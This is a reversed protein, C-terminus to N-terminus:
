KMGTIMARIIQMLATLIASASQMFESFVTMYQQFKQQQTGNMNTAATIATQLNAQITGSNAAATTIAPNVDNANLHLGDLIWNSLAAQANAQSYTSATPDPIRELDKLVKTVYSVIPTVSATNGNATQQQQEALTLGALQQALQARTNLITALVTEITQGPPLKIFPPITRSYIEKALKDFDEAKLLTMDAADLIPGNSPRYLTAYYTQFTKAPIVMISIADNPPISINPYTDNTGKLFAVVSPDSVRAAFARRQDKSLKNYEKVVVSQLNFNPTADVGLQILDTASLSQPDLPSLMNMRESFLGQIGMGSPTATYSRTLFANLTNFLTLFDQYPPPFPPVPVPAIDNIARFVALIYDSQAYQNFSFFSDFTHATSQHLATTIDDFTTGTMYAQIWGKKYIDVAKVVQSLENNLQDIKVPDTISPTGTLLSAKRQETLYIVKDLYGTVGSPIITAYSVYSDITSLISTKQDVTLTSGLSNLLDNIKPKISELINYIDGITQARENLNLPDTPNNLNNMLDTLVPRSESFISDIGAKVTAIDSPSISANLDSGLNADTMNWGLNGIIGMSAPNSLDTQKSSSSAASPVSNFLLSTDIQLKAVVTNAATEFDGITAIHISPTLGNPYYFYTSPATTLPADGLHYVLNTETVGNPLLIAHQDFVDPANQGYGELPYTLFPNILQRLQNIQDPPVVPGTVALNANPLTVYAFESLKNLLTREAGAIAIALSDAKAETLPEPYTAHANTVANQYDQFYGAILGRGQGDIMPLGTAKIGDSLLAIGNFITPTIHNATFTGAPISFRTEIVSKEYETMKNFIAGQVLGVFTERETASGLYSFAKLALPDTANVDIYNHIQQLTGLLQATTQVAALAQNLGTLQKELMDIGATVYQLEVMAQESGTIAGASQASAINIQAISQQGETSSPSAWAQLAAIAAVAPDVGTTPAVAPLEAANMSTNLGVASFGRSLTDLSRVMESSLRATRYAGTHPNLVQTGNALRRLLKMDTIVQNVDERTLSLPPTQLTKESIAKLDAIIQNYTSVVQPDIDITDYLVQTAGGTGEGNDLPTSLAPYTSQIQTLLLTKNDSPTLNDQWLGFSIDPKTSSSSGVPLSTLPILPPTSGPSGEFRTRIVTLATQIGTYDTPIPAISTLGASNAWAIMKAPTLGDHAMQIALIDMTQVMNQSMIFPDTGFGNVYDLGTLASQRLQNMIQLLKVANKARELSSTDSSQSLSFIQQLVSRYSLNVTTSAEGEMTYATSNTSSPATGSTSADYSTSLQYTDLGLTHQSM